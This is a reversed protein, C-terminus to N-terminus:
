YPEQEVGQRKAWTDITEEILDLYADLAEIRERFGDGLFGIQQFVGQWAAIVTEDERLINAIRTWTSLLPWLVAMPQDGDLIAEFARLYYFKRDSHLSAPTHDVPLADYAAVWSPLWSKIPETELNQAGLLGLYGAPLGPRGVAQARQPYQLLYSRETLPPGSLSAVANGANWLARLFDSVEKPGAEPQVMEYNFWIQRAAESQKRVRVLINDPHDFQGRVSAQTFDMFHSPDYYIECANITAGMWPDLRLTKPQRYARQEHHAIDLHVEDTLRVIEREQEVAGAHVFFLDIDVAGGLAYDNGLLSGGLFISLLNPNNRTRQTVTNHIVRLLSTRNIRM